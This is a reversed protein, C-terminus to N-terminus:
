NPLDASQAIAPPALRKLHEILLEPHFPKALIEFTHGELIARSVLDATAPQGSFLIVRCTPQMKSIFIAVDIGNIGSMIVDSILIDPRFQEVVELAAEGSYVAKADYGIASLILTLTDAIMTEDDVILVRKKPTSHPLPGKQTMHQM